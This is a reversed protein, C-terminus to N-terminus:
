KLIFIVIIIAIIIWIVNATDFFTSLKRIWSAFPVKSEALMRDINENEADLKKMITEVENIM